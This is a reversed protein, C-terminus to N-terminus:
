LTIQAQSQPQPPAQNISLKVQDYIFNAQNCGAIQFSFHLQMNNAKLFTDQFNISNIQLQYTSYIEHAQNKIMKFKM